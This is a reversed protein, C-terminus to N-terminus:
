RVANPKVPGDPSRWRKHQDISVLFNAANNTIRASIYEPCLEAAQQITDIRVPLPRDIGYGRWRGYRDRVVADVRKM